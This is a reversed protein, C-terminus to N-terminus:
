FIALGCPRRLSTSVWYVQAGALVLVHAPSTFGWVREGVNFVPGNGRALNQAYVYTIYADDHVAHAGTATLHVARAGIYVILLAIFGVAIRRHRSRGFADTLRSNQEDAHDKAPEENSM